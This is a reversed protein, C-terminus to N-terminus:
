ESWTPAVARESIRTPVAHVHKAHIGCVICYVERHGDRQILAVSDREPRGELVLDCCRVIHLRLVVSHKSQLM